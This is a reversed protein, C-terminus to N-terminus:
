LIVGDKLLDVIEDLEDATAPVGELHLEEVQTFGSLAGLRSTIFSQYGKFYGEYESIAPIDRTIIIYPTQPSLMGAVTSLSGTKQIHPKNLNPSEAILTGAMNGVAMPTYGGETAVIKAVNTAVSVACSINAQVIRSYDDNTLPIVTMCEGSFSYMVTGNVSIHAVCMGTAVDLLYTINITKGILIDADFTKTGIYPLYIEIQTHPSYDMFSGYYEDIIVDGMDVKVFQHLIKNMSLGSDINGVMINQTYAVESSSFEYPIVGLGLLCENINAFFTKFTEFAKNNSHLFSYLLGLDAVTPAYLSIMGTTTVNISPVNPVPIIDTTSDWDGDGGDPEIYGGIDYPDPDSSSGRVRFYKNDDTVLLGSLTNFFDYAM